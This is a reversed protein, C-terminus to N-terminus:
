NRPSHTITVPPPIPSILGKVGPNVDSGSIKPLGRLGCRSGCCSVMILRISVSCDTYVALKEATIPQLEKFKSALFICVSALLQFQSKEIRVRSLVRDMYDVALAFVEHHCGQEATVEMMWDCVIKRMHPRLATQIGAKFYDTVLRRRNREEVLVNRLVRADCTLAPDPFSRIGLGATVAEEDEDSDLAMMM